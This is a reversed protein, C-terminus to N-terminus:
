KLTNLKVSEHLSIGLSRIIDVRPNPADDKHTRKGPLRTGLNFFFVNIRFPQLIADDTMDTHAPIFNNVTM